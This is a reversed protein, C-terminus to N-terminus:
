RRNSKFGFNEIASLTNAVQEKDVQFSCTRAIPDNPEAFSLEFVHNKAIAALGFTFIWLVPHYKREKRYTFSFRSKVQETTLGERASPWMHLGPDNWQFFGMFPMPVVTEGAAEVEHDPAQPPYEFDSIRGNIKLDWHAISDAFWRGDTHRSAKIQAEKGVPVRDLDLGEIFIAEPFNDLQLYPVSRDFTRITGVVKVHDPDPVEVEQALLVVSNNGREEWVQRQVSTAIIHHGPLLEKQDKIGLWSTNSLTLFLSHPELNVAIADVGIPRIEVVDGELRAQPTILHPAPVKEISLATFTWPADEVFEVHIYDAPKLASFNSVNEFKTKDTIRVQRSEADPQVTLSQQNHDLKLVYSDWESPVPFFNGHTALPIPCPGNRFVAPKGQAWAASGLSPLFLLPVLTRFRFRHVFCCPM